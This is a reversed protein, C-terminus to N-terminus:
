SDKHSADLVSIYKFIGVCAKIAFLCGFYIRTLLKCTGFFLQQFHKEEMYIEVNKLLSKKFNLFQFMYNIQILLIEIIIGKTELNKTEDFEQM